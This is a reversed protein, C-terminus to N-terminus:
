YRDGVPLEGPQALAAWELRECRRGETLSFDAPLGDAVQFKVHLRFARQAGHQQRWLAWHMRPLAYCLTSDIVQTGDLRNPACGPTKPRRPAVQGVLGDYIKKLLAPDAVAQAESFSGLSVPRRCAEKQVRQLHSAQCLGRMSTIVPNFVGLLFLSLYDALELLRKADEWTPASDVQSLAKALHRNFEALLKWRHLQKEQLAPKSKKPV